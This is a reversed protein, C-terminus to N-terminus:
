CVVGFRYANVRGLETLRAGPGCRGNITYSHINQCYARLDDMQARTPPKGADQGGAAAPTLYGAATLDRRSLLRLSAPQFPQGAPPWERGCAACPGVPLPAGYAYAGGAATIFVGPRDPHINGVQCDQCPVGPADEALREGCATCVLGDNTGGLWGAHWVPGCERPPQPPPGYRQELQKQRRNREDAWIRELAEGRQRRQEPSHRQKAARQEDRRRRLQKARQRRNM